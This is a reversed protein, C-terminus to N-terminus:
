EGGKSKGAMVSATLASVMAANARLSACYDNAHIFNGDDPMSAINLSESKGYTEPAIAMSPIFGAATCSVNQRREGMLEILLSMMGVAVDKHALADPFIIPYEFVQGHRVVAMIVYKM